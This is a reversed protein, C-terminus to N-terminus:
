CAPDSQADFSSIHPNLVQAELKAIRSQLIETETQEAANNDKPTGGDRSAEQIVAFLEDFSISGDNDADAEALLFEATHDDLQPFGQSLSEVM